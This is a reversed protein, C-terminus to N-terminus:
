HMSRRGSYPENITKSNIFLFITLHMGVTGVMASFQGRFINAVYNTKRAPDVTFTVMATDNENVQPIM